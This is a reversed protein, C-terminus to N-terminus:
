TLIFYRFILTIKFECTPYHLEKALPQICAGFLQILLEVKFWIKVNFILELIFWTFGDIHDLQSIGMMRLLSLCIEWDIENKLLATQRWHTMHFLCPDFNWAKTGVVRCIIKAALPVIQIIDKQIFKNITNITCWEKIKKRCKKLIIIPYM